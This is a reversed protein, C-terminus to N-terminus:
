AVQLVESLEDLDVYFLALLQDLLESEECGQERFIDVARAIDFRQVLRQKKNEDLAIYRM